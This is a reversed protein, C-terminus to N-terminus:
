PLRRLWSEGLCWQLFLALLGLALVKRYLEEVSRYESVEITAYISALGTTDRARFYRGGTAEAVRTLTTEDVEESRRFFGGGGNSGVGVTYITVGLSSAAEAAQMPTISGANNRGDTLLVLVKSPAELRGLQRGAIAIAEGIATQNAGAMGIRVNSLFRDLAEHDLTLPVQTFAEEGFVVLGVRDMDRSKIFDSVVKKAASLRDVPRGGLNFDAAEMSGSVDLALVIDIGESSVVQEVEVLQPRALAFVALALGVFELASPLWAVAVRLSSKRNLVSLSSWQVGATSRKRRWFVLPLLLMLLLWAPHQFEFM